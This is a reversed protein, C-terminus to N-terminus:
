LIIGETDVKIISHDNNYYNRASSYLWEEEREVYGKVVPNEHIYNLKQDFYDESEVLKPWNKPDWIQFDLDKKKSHSIRIVELIYKRNDEELLRKIERTTFSKFGKIFIIMDQCQAVFHLHNTMIVYGFIRLNLERQYFKFVKILLDFYECSTFIDLWDIVTLTMFYCRDRLEKDIRITPM